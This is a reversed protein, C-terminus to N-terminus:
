RRISRDLDEAKNGSHREFKDIIIQRLNKPGLQM